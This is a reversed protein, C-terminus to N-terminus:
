YYFVQFDITLSQRNSCPSIAGAGSRTADAWVTCHEIAGPSVSLPIPAVLSFREKMLSPIEFRSDSASLSEGAAGGQQHCELSVSPYDIQQNSTNTVTVSLEAKEGPKASKELKLDSLALNRFPACAPDATSSGAWPAAEEARGGCAAVSFFLLAGLVSSIRLPRPMTPQAACSSNTVVTPCRPQLDVISTLRRNSPDVKM